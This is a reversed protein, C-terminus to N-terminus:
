SSTRWGPWSRPCGPSGPGPGCTPRRPLDSADLYRRVLERTGDGAPPATGSVWRDLTTVMVLGSRGWVGRPPTQVLPALGVVAEALLRGPGLGSRDDLQRAVERLPRPEDGFAARVATVLEDVDIGPTALFPLTRQRLMPDHVARFAVADGATVLHVTRRMLHIRVVAREELAAALEAPDFGDHRSWIGVYPEM